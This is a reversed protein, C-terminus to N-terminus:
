RAIKFSTPIFNLWFATLTDVARVVESSLFTETVQKSCIVVYQDLFQSQYTILNEVSFSFVYKELQFKNIHLMVAMYQEANGMTVDMLYSAIFACGGSLGMGVMLYTNKLVM